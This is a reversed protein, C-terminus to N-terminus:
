RGEGGACVVEKERGKGRFEVICVQFICSVRSKEYDGAGISERLWGRTRAL